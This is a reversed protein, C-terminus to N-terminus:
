TATTRCTLTAQLCRRALERPPCGASRPATVASIRVELATRVAAYCGRSRKECRVQWIQDDRMSRALSFPELEGLM